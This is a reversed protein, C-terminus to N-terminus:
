TISTHVGLYEFKDCSNVTDGNAFRVHTVSVQGLHMAKVNNHSITLGIEAALSEFRHVFCEVDDISEPLLCIDDAYALAGIHMAPHWDIAPHLISRIGNRKCVVFGVDDQLTKKLAYDLLVIFLYPSLTDGQLVGSTTKFWETPGLETSVCASTDSYMQTIDRILCIPVNYQSLIVPISSRDDRTSLKDFLMYINTCLLM